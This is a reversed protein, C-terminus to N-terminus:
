WRTDERSLPKMVNSRHISWCKRGQANKYHFDKGGIMTSEQEYTIEESCGDCFTKDGKDM